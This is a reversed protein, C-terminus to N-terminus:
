KRGGDRTTLRVDTRHPRNHTMTHVIELYRNVGVEVNDVYYLHRGTEDRETRLSHGRLRMEQLVVGCGSGAASEREVKVSTVQQSM